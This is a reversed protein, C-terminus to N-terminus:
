RRFMEMRQRIWHNEKSAKFYHVLKYEIGLIKAYSVLYVKDGINTPKKKPEAATGSRKIQNSRKYKSKVINTKDIYYTFTPKSM